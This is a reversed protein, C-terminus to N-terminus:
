GKAWVPMPADQQTAYSQRSLDRELECLAAAIDGVSETVEVQCAGVSLTAGDEGDDRIAMILPAAVIVRTRTNRDTLAIGTAHIM